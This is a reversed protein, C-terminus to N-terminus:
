NPASAARAAADVPPRPPVVIKPKYKEPFLIPDWEPHSSLNAVLAARFPPEAIKSRWRQMLMRRVAPEAKLWHEVDAYAFAPAERPTVVRERFREGRLPLNDRFARPLAEVFGPPMGSAVSGAAPPKRQYFSGARLSVPPSAAKQRETLRLEGSEVFVRLEAPTSHFVAVAASDPLEFSPARLDMGPRATNDRKGTMRKLWGDLLYLGQEVKPRQTAAQFMLRTSPGVQIVSRDALEIQAFTAPATEVIDGAALRVGEAAHLRGLGRIVQAQGEIITVTGLDQATAAMPSLLMAVILLLRMTRFM